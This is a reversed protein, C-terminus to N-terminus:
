SQIAQILTHKDEQTSPITLHSLNNRANYCLVFKEALVDYKYLSILLM